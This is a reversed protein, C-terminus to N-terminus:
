VSSIASMREKVLQTKCSKKPVAGQDAEVREGQHRESRRPNKKHFIGGIHLSRLWPINWQPINWPQAQFAAKSYEVM